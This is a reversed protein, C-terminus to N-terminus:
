DRLREIRGTSGNFEVRDGDKLWRTVGPISVIAPIGLERSVIAAHSLLSGREVLLGAAAPFLLIWGPDTREAVLVTGPALPQEQTLLSHPDRVVRVVGRVIGPSCGLGQQVSGSPPRATHTANIGSHPIGYTAFRDPPPPTERYHDFESRRLAVLGKIRNCTSTGALISIIEEVNLYFIDDPRHLLDLVFFRKGLELFIQRARGFVRTREFRLNERDRLRARTQHLVGAFILRKLPSRRLLRRLHLLEPPPLPTAATEPTPTTHMQAAIAGVSRLLPLPNEALTPSELKLEDLCRDSFQDLYRHYAAALEPHKTLATAIATPTDRQLTTILDPDRAVRRAMERLQRAPETSIMAGQEVLLLNPLIGDRDGGWTQTLRCLVGYCIMALFDNVIPADWRPLLQRTLDQYHAVLEDAALQDLHPPPPPTQRLLRQRLSTQPPGLARDLRRYFRYKTWPLLIANWGLGFLTRVLEIGDQWWPKGAMQAIIEEPLSEKVGMMQEMFRRNLRFGPLLTLVRYWSLLNYYIRGQMLGIMTTFTRDSAAIRSQSVGMLRCFQRYVEEYARRAFSFTLPTTVGSYSEAINSNDWLRYRGSSAQSTPLATIPRAQLLYLQGNDTIAWEIDQPLGFEQGTRQVLTAIAQAQRDSIAPETVQDPAIAKAFVGSKGTPNPYHAQPKRAIQRQLIDGQRNLYFTDADEEGSVLLSGLGYVANIIVLNRRGTVPDAGFAVGAAVPNLMQQVLVAPPQPLDTQGQRHRYLLVNDQYASRWVAAIQPQLDAAAVSLSTHLQGALSREIGDEDLASSRVAFQGGYPFVAAMAQLLEYQVAESPLVDALLAQISAATQPSQPSLSRLQDEQDRTLSDWFAAPTVVFGPPVSFGQQSLRAIASAKRGMLAIVPRETLQVIYKM